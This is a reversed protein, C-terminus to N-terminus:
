LNDESWKHDKHKCHEPSGAKFNSNKIGDKIEKLLQHASSVNIDYKFAIERVTIKPNLLIQELVIRHIVNTNQKYLIIKNLKRQKDIENDLVSDFDDVESTIDGVLNISIEPNQKKSSDLKKWVISNRIFAILQKQIEDRTTNEDVKDSLYVYANTVISYPCESSKNKFCIGKAINVLFTYNDTIYKSLLTM